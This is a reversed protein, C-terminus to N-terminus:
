HGYSVAIAEVREALNEGSRWRGDAMVGAVNKLNEASALPNDDLLVLDAQWNERIAGFPVPLDLSQHIFQAGNWSSIKLVDGLPIGCNLLAQVERHTAFGAVAGTGPADTGMLIPVGAEHLERTLTRLFALEDDYDGPQQGMAKLNSIAEWTVDVSEQIFWRIEPRQWYDNIGSQNNGAVQATLEDIVLTSTVSTNNRLTDEVAQPILSEDTQGDFYDIGYEQIHAVLDLGNDLADVPTVTRQFHAISPMGLAASEDLLAFTVESSVLDFFKIYHYGDTVAQQVVARAEAATSPMNGGGVAPSFVWRADYIQPGDMTGQGVTTNYQSSQFSNGPVLITTVGNALYQLLENAVISDRASRPAHNALHTHTDVLGPILYRSRGDIHIVDGPLQSEDHEGVYTILGGQIVVMQNETLTAAPMNLITVHEFVAAQSRGIKNPVADPQVLEDCDSEPVFVIRTIDVSGQEAGDFDYDVSGHNCDQFRFVASGIAVTEVPAPDVFAGGTTQYITAEVVPGSYPGELTYWRHAVPDVGAGESPRPFGFWGSFLVDPQELVEVFFGQGTMDPNYWAGKLAPGINLDDACLPPAFGITLAILAILRRVGFM